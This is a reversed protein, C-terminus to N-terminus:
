DDNCIFSHRGVPPIHRDVTALLVVGQVLRQFLVYLGSPFLATIELVSFPVQVVVLPPLAPVQVLVHLGGWCDDGVLLGVVGM